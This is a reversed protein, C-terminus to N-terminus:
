MRGGYSSRTIQYIRVPLGMFVNHDRFNMGIKRAVRISAMNEPQIISIFADNETQEFFWDRLGSAAETAYGYGWYKQALRYSLEWTERGDVEQLFFGTYGLLTKTERLCAAWMGPTSNFYNSRCHKIFHFTELPSHPGHASFRMVLPDALTVSLAEHDEPKLQRIVLRNTSLIDL